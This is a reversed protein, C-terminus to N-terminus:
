IFDIPLELLVKDKVQNKHKEIKKEDKEFYTPRDQSLIAANKCMFRENFKVYSRKQSAKSVYM